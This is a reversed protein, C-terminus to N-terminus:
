QAQKFVVLVDAARQNMYCLMIWDASRAVSAIRVEDITGYFCKSKQDPQAGITVDLNTVRPPQVDYVDDYPVSDVCIGDLFLRMEKGTRVGTLYKWSSAFARIQVLEWCTKDQYESFEWIHDPTTTSDNTVLQLSYQNDSKSVIARNVSDLTEAYVWASITYTDHESFNLKGNATGALTLASTKGDFARGIGITGTVSSAATMGTPIGDFHNCTADYATSVGPEDLHWVGQFGKATDFVATGNSVSAVDPNGWLMNIHQTTNNGRVTDVQVWVEAQGNASDWREIEYSLWLSDSKAFRIDSGDNKSEAFNFNDKTLRVLVPFNTVDGMVQAGSATTNLYLRRSFRWTANVIEVTDGPIVRINQTVVTQAASNARTFNLAPITGAPISDIIAVHSTGDLHVSISTGPSYLIGSASNLTNPLYVRLCGSSKLTDSPVITAQGRVTVGTILVRTRKTLHLAQLNYIGPDTNKFVYTGQSDTTDIMADAIPPDIGPIYDQPIIQVQTNPAPAGSPLYLNGVVEVESGGGNDQTVNLSGCALLALAIGAFLIHLISSNM